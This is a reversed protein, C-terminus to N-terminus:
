PIQLTQGSTVNYPSSIDNAAAIAMPDVDGYYCAISYITDNARVTYTAPHDHLATDGPWERANQPIRLERGPYTTSSISLGNASLLDIPHIDFRRAICYPFEGKQLTYSSPVEIPAATPVVAPPPTNTPVTVVPQTQAPAMTATPPEPTNTVQGTEGEALAAATQTAITEFLGMTETGDGPVPFGGEGETPTTVPPTSAPLRCGSVGIVLLGIVLVLLIHKIKM